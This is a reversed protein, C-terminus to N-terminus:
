RDPGDGARRRGIAVVDTVVEHAGAREREYSVTDSRLVEFDGELAARLREPTHLRDREPPGRRGHDLAHVGTVFLHGGPVLAEAARGYVSPRESRDPHMFSVVVLELSAQALEHERWDEVACRLQVGAARARGAARGLAVDSVDLATVEWGRTALWVSNRGEGAGIDLARGPALASAFQVLAANPSDTWLSSTTAYRTNWAQGVSQPPESSMRRIMATPRAHRLRAVVARRDGAIARHALM